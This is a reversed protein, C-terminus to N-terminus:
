YLQNENKVITIPKPKVIIKRDDGDIKVEVQPDLSTGQFKIKAM